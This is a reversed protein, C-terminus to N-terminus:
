AESHYTIIQPSSLLEIYSLKLNQLIFEEGPRIILVRRDFVDERKIKVAIFEPYKDIIIKMKEVHRRVRREWSNAAPKSPYPVPNARDNWNYLESIM